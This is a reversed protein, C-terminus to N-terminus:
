LNLSGSKIKETLASKKIEHFCKTGKAKVGSKRLKGGGRSNSKSDKAETETVRDPISPKRLNKLKKKRQGIEGRVTDGHTQM